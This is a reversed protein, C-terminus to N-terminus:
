QITIEFFLGLMHFLNKQFFSPGGRIAPYFKWRKGIKGACTSRNLKWRIAVSM